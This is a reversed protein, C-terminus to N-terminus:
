QLEWASWNVGPISLADQHRQLEWAGWNVGPIPLAYHHRKHNRNADGQQRIIDSM